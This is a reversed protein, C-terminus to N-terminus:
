EINNDKCWASIFIVVGIPFTFPIVMFFVAILYQILLMKKATNM